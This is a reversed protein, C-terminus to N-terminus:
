RPGCEGPTIGLPANIASELSDPTLAGNKQMMTLVLDRERIARDAHCWPDQVEPDPLQVSLLAAQAATLQAPPKGFFGQSAQDIGHWGKRGFTSEVAVTNILTEVDWERTMRAMTGVQSLAWRPSAPLKIKALYLRSAHGALLVGAQDEFCHGRAEMEEADSVREAAVNCTIFGFMGWATLPVVHPEGVGRARAWIAARVLPPVPARVAIAEPSGPTLWNGVTFITPLALLGGLMALAVLGLILNRWDLKV